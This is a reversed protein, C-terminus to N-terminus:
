CRKIIFTNFELLETCHQRLSFLLLARSLPEKHRDLLQTITGSGLGQTGRMDKILSELHTREDVNPSLDLQGQLYALVADTPKQPREQKQENILVQVVGWFIRADVPKSITEGNVWDPLKALIPDSTVLDNDDDEVSASGIISQFWLSLKNFLPLDDNDSISGTVLRYAALGLQSRNACHYLMALVGGLAQGFAPISDEFSLQALPQEKMPIPFLLKDVKILESPLDVNAVDNAAEEFKQRDEDSYFNISLLCTLSLPARFLLVFEKKQKGSPKSFKKKNGNTDVVFHEPLKNLDFSAICPLLHKREETAKNFVFDPITVTDRFLSIWGPYFGLPDSYYKNRFGKPGMVMGAALMYLMNQHNTVLHVLKPEKPKQPKSATQTNTNM